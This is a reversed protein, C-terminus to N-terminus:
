ATVASACNANVCSVCAQCAAAGGTGGSGTTGPTGAGSGGSGGTGGTGSDDSCSVFVCIASIVFAARLINMAAPYMRPGGSLIELRERAFRSHAAVKKSTNQ